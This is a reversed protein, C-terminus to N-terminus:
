RSIDRRITTTRTYSSERVRGNITRLRDYHRSEVLSISQYAPTTRASLERDNRSLEWGASAEHANAATARLEAGGLVLSSRPADAIPERHASSCGGTLLGALALTFMPLAARLMM